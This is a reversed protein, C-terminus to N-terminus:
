AAEKMHRELFDLCLREAPSAVKPSALKEANVPDNHEYIVRCPRGAKASMDHILKVAYPGVTQVSSAGRSALAMVFREGEERGRARYIARCLLNCSVEHWRGGILLRPQWSVETRTYGDDVDHHPFARPQGHVLVVPCGTAVHLRRCKEVEEPTPEAGKVEIFADLTPLYFDPLYGRFDYPMYEYLYAIGLSSLMSAVRSESLSRMIYGDHHCWTSDISRTM